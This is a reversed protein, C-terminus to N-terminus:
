SRPALTFMDSHMNEKPLGNEVFMDLTAYVMGPGGSVYVTLDSPSLKFQNLKDVAVQGVLGTEGQWNPSLKPESIVPIFHFNECEEKWILCQKTLYIDEEKLVGWFLYIDKDHNKELLSEIISRMQTIGTSAAILILTDTPPTDVFCRGFPGNINLVASNDLAEEILDSDESNETPRIHLELFKAGPKSAISFPLSRDELVIELYQGAKFTINQSPKLLVRRTDQNLYDISEVECRITM